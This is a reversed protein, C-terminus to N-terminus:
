QMDTTRQLALTTLLDNHLLSVLVASSTQCHNHQLRLEVVAFCISASSSVTEARGQTAAPKAEQATSCSRAL